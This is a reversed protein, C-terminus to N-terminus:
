GSIVSNIGKHVFLPCLSLGVINVHSGTCVLKEADVVSPYFLVKRGQFFGLFDSGVGTETDSWRTATTQNEYKENM